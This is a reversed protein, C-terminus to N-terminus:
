KPDGFGSDQNGIGQIEELQLNLLETDGMGPKDEPEASIQFGTPNINKALTNYLGQEFEFGLYINKHESFQQLFSHYAASYKGTFVYNIQQHNLTNLRSMQALFLVSDLHVQVFIKKELDLLKEDFATVPIQIGDLPLIGCVGQITKFDGHSFEGIYKPGTLWGVIEKAKLANKYDPSLDDFCFGIWDAMAAAAFRAATLNSINSFKLECMIYLIDYNLLDAGGSKYYTYYYFGYPM